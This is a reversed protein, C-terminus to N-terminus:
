AQAQNLATPPDLGAELHLDYFKAMLLATAADSVPWLTGLVGAAGLATVRRLPPVGRVLAGRQLPKRLALYQGQQGQGSSPPVSRKLPYLVRDPHSFGAM